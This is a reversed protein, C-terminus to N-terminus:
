CCLRSVIIRMGCACRLYAVAELGSPWQADIGRDWIRNKQVSVAMPLTVHSDQDTPETEGDGSSVEQDFDM